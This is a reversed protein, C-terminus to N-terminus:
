ALWIDQDSLGATLVKGLAEVECFCQCKPECSHGHHQGERLLEERSLQRQGAWILHSLEKLSKLPKSM